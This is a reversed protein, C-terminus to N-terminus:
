NEGIDFLEKHRELDENSIEGDSPMSYEMCNGGIRINKINPLSLLYIPLKKLKNSSIDLYELSTMKELSPPLSTLKNDSLDIRRIAALDLYSLAHELRCLCPLTVKDCFLNKCVLDPSNRLCINEILFSKKSVIDRLSRATM